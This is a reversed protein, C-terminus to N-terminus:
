SEATGNLPLHDHLEEFSFIASSNLNNSIGLGSALESQMHPPISQILGVCAHSLEALFRVDFGVLSALIPENEDDGDNLDLSSCEEDAWLLVRVLAACALRKTSAGDTLHLKQRLWTELWQTTKANSTEVLCLWARFSPKM